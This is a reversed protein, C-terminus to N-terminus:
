FWKNSKKKKKYIELNKKRKYYNNKGFFRKQHCYKHYIATGDQNKKWSQYVLRGCDVCKGNDMLGTDKLEELYSEDQYDDYDLHKAGIPQGEEEIGRLEEITDKLQQKVDVEVEGEIQLPRSKEEEVKAEHKPNEIVVDVKGEIEQLHIDPNDKNNLNENYNNESVKLVGIKVLFSLM